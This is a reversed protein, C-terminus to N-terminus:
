RVLRISIRAAGTADQALVSVLAVSLTLVLLRAFARYSPLNRYALESAGTMTYGQDRIIDVFRKLM